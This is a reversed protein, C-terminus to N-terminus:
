EINRIRLFEPSIKSRHEELRLSLDQGKDTSLFPTSTMKTLGNKTCDPYYYSGGRNLSKEM